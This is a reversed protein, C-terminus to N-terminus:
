QGKLRFIRWVLGIRDARVYSKDFLEKGRKTALGDLIRKHRNLPHSNILKTGIEHDCAGAIMDLLNCDGWMVGDRDADVLVERAIDAITKRM